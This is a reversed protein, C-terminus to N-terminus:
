SPCSWAGPACLVLLTLPKHVTLISCCCSHLSSSWKTQSHSPDCILCFNYAAPARATINAITRKGRQGIFIRRPTQYKLIPISPRIPSNKTIAIKRSIRKAIVINTVGGPKHSYGFRNSSTPNKSLKLGNHPQCSTRCVLGIKSSCQCMTPFSSSSSTSPMWWTPLHLHLLPLLSLGVQELM